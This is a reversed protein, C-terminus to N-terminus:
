TQLGCRLEAWHSSNLCHRVLASFAAASADPFALMYDAVGELNDAVRQYNGRTLAKTRVSPLDDFLFHNLKLPASAEPM